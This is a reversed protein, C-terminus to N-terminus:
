FDNGELRTLRDGIVKMEMIEFDIKELVRTNVLQGDLIEMIQIVKLDMKGFTGM